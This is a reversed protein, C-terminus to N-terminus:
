AISVFNLVLEVQVVHHQWGTFIHFLFLGLFQLCPPVHHLNALHSHKLHSPVHKVLSADHKLHGQHHKLFPLGGNKINQIDLFM